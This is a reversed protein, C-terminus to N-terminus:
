FNHQMCLDTLSEVNPTEAVLINQTKGELAAATTKGICFCTEDGLTNGKLFSSVGSPSFFLIGDFKQNIKVPNLITQYATQEEVGIGNEILLEPLADRRLNGSFYVFRSAPHNTAIKNALQESYPETEAVTLGLSLLGERTQNGVVFFSCKEFDEKPFQHLLSKLANLSTLIINQNAPNFQVPLFGINIFAKEELYFGAKLLKERHAASLKKTSLLKPTHRSM